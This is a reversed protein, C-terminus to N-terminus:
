LMHVQSSVFMQVRAFLQLLVLYSFFHLVKLHADSSWSSLSPTLFVQEKLTHCVGGSPGPHNISHYWLCSHSWAESLAQTPSSRATPAVIELAHTGVFDMHPFVTNYSFGAFFLAEPHWTGTHLNFQHTQPYTAAEPGCHKGRHEHNFWSNQSITPLLRGARLPATPQGTSATQHRHQPRRM